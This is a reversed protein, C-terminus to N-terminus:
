KSYKQINLYWIDKFSWLLQEAFKLLQLLSYCSLLLFWLLPSFSFQVFQANRDILEVTDWGFLLWSLYPLAHTTNPYSTPLTLSLSATPHFDNHAPFGPAKNSLIRPTWSPTQKATGSQVSQFRFTHEAYKTRPTVTHMMSLAVVALTNHWVHLVADVLGTAEQVGHLSTAANHTGRRRRDYRSFHRRKFGLGHWWRHWWRHWRLAAVSWTLNICFLGLWGLTHFSM